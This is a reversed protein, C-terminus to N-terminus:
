LLLGVTIDQVMSDEIEPSSDAAFVKILRCELWQNATLSVPEPILGALITASTQGVPNKIAKKFQRLTIAHLIGDTDARVVFGKKLYEGLRSNHMSGDPYEWDTLTTVPDFDTETIDVYGYDDVYFGVNLNEGDRLVTM